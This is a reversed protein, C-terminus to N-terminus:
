NNISIFRRTETTKIVMILSSYLFVPFICSNGLSCLYPSSSINVTFILPKLQAIQASTTNYWINRNPVRIITAFAVSVHLHIKICSLAYQILHTNTSKSGLAKIDRTYFIFYLM